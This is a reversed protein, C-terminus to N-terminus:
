AGYPAGVQEGGAQLPSPAVGDGRGRWRCGERGNHPKLETGTRTCCVSEIYFNYFMQSVISILFIFHSSPGIKAKQKGKEWKIEEPQLIKHQGGQYCKSTSSPLARSVFANASFASALVALAVFTFKM